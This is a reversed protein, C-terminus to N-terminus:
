KVNTENLIGFISEIKKDRCFVVFVCKSITKVKAFTNKTKSCAYYTCIDPVTQISDVKKLVNEHKKSSKGIGFQM